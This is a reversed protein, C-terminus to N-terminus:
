STQPNAPPKLKNLERATDVVALVVEPTESLKTFGRRRLARQAIEYDEQRM